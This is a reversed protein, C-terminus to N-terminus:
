GSSMSARISTLTPPASSASAAQRRSCAARAHPQQEVLLDAALDSIPELRHTVVRDGNGSVRVPATSRVGLDELDCLRLAPRDGGVIAAIEFGDDAFVGRETALVVAEHDHRRRTDRVLSEAAQGLREGRKQDSRLRAPLKM